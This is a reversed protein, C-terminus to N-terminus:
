QLPGDARLWGAASAEAVASGRMQGPLLSVIRWRPLFTGAGVHRLRYPPLAGLGAVAQGLAAGAGSYLCM